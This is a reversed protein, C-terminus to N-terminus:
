APNEVRVTVADDDGLVARLPDEFAIPVLAVGPDLEPRIKVPFRGEGHRSVVRATWGQRLGLAPGRLVRTAGSTVAAVRGPLHPLLAVPRAFM